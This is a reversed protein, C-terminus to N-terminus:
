MNHSVHKHKEKLLKKIESSKEEDMHSLSYDSQENNQAM